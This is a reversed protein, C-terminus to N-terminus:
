EGTYRHKDVADTRTSDTSLLQDRIYRCAEDEGEFTQEDFRQGRETYYVAWKSNKRELVYAMDARRGDLEYCAPRISNAILLERLQERSMM